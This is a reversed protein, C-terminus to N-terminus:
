LVGTLQLEGHQDSQRIASFIEPGFAYAGVNVLQSSVQHPAPKEIIETVHNDQLSVMGYATPDRVRTVALTAERTSERTDALDKLLAPEVIRDGNLVLFDDSVLSEAQLLADGTGRPTTQEVYSIEVDWAAGNEFYKQIRERRYGVVFVLEDIGTERLSTVVHELLPKNAVPVMPKPRSRTLPRFRKGEGATLVVAKM